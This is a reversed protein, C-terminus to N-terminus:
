VGGIPVVSGPSVIAGAVASEAAIRPSALYVKAERHGMRGPFNRNTTSVAVDEAALLGMHAGFCPGCGPSTVVGGAERFIRTLGQDEMEQAIKKSAPIVILLVQDAVKRGKLVEAAIKMDSLRGNTCSGIVAQTIKTGALDVAKAVQGPNPPCAVCAEIEVGQFIFVDKVNGISENPEAFYSIMTGMEIGMNSITMKDELSLQEVLSGTYIVAKDTFGNTGFIGILHLIVDKAYVGPQLKGELRIEYTEPVELDLMGTAMAAALETSGIPIGLVGYAGATCTHSDAGAIISGRELRHNEAIIQHIVGECREYIKIGYEQAFAKLTNQGVKAEVTAAPIIHDIVFVIKQPDFVNKIGIKKFQEVAIPGTVDHTIALDVKVAIDEGVQVKKRGAAKALYKEISNM